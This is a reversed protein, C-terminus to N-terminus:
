PNQQQENTGASVANEVNSSGDVYESDGDGGYDGGTSDDNHKINGLMENLNENRENNLVRMVEEEAKTKYINKMELEEIPPKQQVKTNMNDILQANQLDNRAQDMQSKYIGVKSLEDVKPRTKLQQNVVDAKLSQELSLRRQDMSSKYIGANNLESQTPRNKLQQNIADAKLSQELSERRQDMTTKYIGKAVLEDHAPRTRLQQHITDAKQANVLDLRAQDMTSRYSNLLLRYKQMNQSNVENAITQNRLNMLAPPARNRLNKSLSDVAQSRALLRRQNEWNENSNLLYGADILTQQDQRDRLQQSLRNAQMEQELAIANAQLTSYM